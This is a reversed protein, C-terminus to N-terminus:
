SAKGGFWKSTKQNYTDNGHALRARDCTPCRHAAQPAYNGFPTTAPKHTNLWGRTCGTHTCRCEPWPCALGHEDDDDRWEGAARLGLEMQALEQTFDPIPQGAEKAAQIQRQMELCRSSITTM